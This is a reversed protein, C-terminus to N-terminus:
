GYQAQKPLGAWGQHQTRGEQAKDTREQWHGSKPDGLQNHIRDDGSNHMSAAIRHMDPFQNRQLKQKSNACVKQSSCLAKYVAHQGVPKPFVDAQADHLVCGLQVQGAKFVM